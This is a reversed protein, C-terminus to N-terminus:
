YKPEKGQEERKDDIRVEIKWRAKLLWEYAKDLAQIEKANIRATQGLVCSLSQIREMLRKILRRIAELDDATVFEGKSHTTPRGNLLRFGRDKM